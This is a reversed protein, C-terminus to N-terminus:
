LECKGEYPHAQSKIKKGNGVRDNEYKLADRSGKIVTSVPDELIYENNDEGILRWTGSCKYGQNPPETNTCRVQAKFFGGASAVLKGSCGIEASAHSVNLALWVASILIPRM